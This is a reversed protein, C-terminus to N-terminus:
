SDQVLLLRMKPHVLAIECSVFTACSLGLRHEFTVSLPIDTCGFLPLNQLFLACNVCNEPSAGEWGRATFLLYIGKVGLEQFVIIAIQDCDVWTRYSSLNVKKATPYSIKTKIQGNPWTEMLILVGVIDQLKMANCNQSSEQCTVIQCMSLKRKIRM